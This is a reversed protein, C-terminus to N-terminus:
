LRGYKKDYINFFTDMNLFRQLFREASEIILIDPKEGFLFDKTYKDIVFDYGFGVFLSKVTHFNEALLHLYRAHFSDGIIVVELNNDVNNNIYENLFYSKTEFQVHKNLKSAPNLLKIADAYKYKENIYKEPPVSDSLQETQITEIESSNVPKINPYSKKIENIITDYEIKSGLANLHTDYPLFVMHKDKIKALNEYQSIINLGKITKLDNKIQELRSINNNPRYYNPYYEPYISEKDNSLAIYLKVNNSDCYKKLNYINQHVKNLEKESFLDKRLYRNISNFGKNYSFDAQKNYIIGNNEYYYKTFHSKFNYYQDIYFNRLFFRDNFWENFDKGFNFNIEGNENIVPKWKALTRNEKQSIEQTNINSIPIFLVIFFITLFIIEIRSKEHVTKFDAVYDSLKYALLYTLVLIIIFVYFDFNIGPRINLTEPYTITVNTNLKPKIILNDNKVFSDANSVEFKKLDKLKYKGVKINGLLIDNESEIDTIVFRVRKPFNSMKIDLNAHTNKDLDIEKNENKAKEFDNNDQKNLVVKINCAGKGKIDFSVHIPDFIMWYQHAAIIVAITIIISLITRKKM